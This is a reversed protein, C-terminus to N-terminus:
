AYSTPRVGHHGGITTTNSALAANIAYAARAGSAAAVAVSQVPTAADGAAYLYPVSTQGTPDVVVAGTEGIEAGLQVALDSGLSLEPRFFLADRVVTEGSELVVHVAGEREEVHDIGDTPLPMVDNSLSTLLLALHDAREGSGVVGLRRDRVEWGHCYPCHFLTSGWLSEMGPVDPLGYRMGHALVLYRGTVVAGDDLTLEFGDDARRTAVRAAVTELEVSPYSELQERGIRRLEQPPTGDAGLFGHVADTVAHAPADTDVVLVRRRMRGLVLAANLGAPGAGVIVVDSATRQRESTMM